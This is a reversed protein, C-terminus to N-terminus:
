NIVPIALFNIIKGLFIINIENVISGSEYDSLRDIQFLYPSDIVRSRDM